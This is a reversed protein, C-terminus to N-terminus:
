LKWKMVPKNMHICLNMYYGSSGYYADCNKTALFADNESSIVEIDTMEKAASLCELIEKAEAPCVNKVNEEFTSDIIWLLNINEGIETMQKLVERVKSVFANEDCYADSINTYFLLQKKIGDDKQGGSDNHHIGENNPKKESCVLIKEVWTDRTKSGALETLADIYNKKQLENELIIKDAVVAGVTAAYYRLNLQGKKDADKVGESNLYPIYILEKAFIALKKAFYDPHICIAGNWEDHSNQIVIEDPFLNEVSTSSYDLLPLDDEYEGIDFKMNSLKGNFSKEFYPVPMVKVVWEEDCKRYEYYPKMSEWYKGSFPIFLVLKKKTISYFCESLVDFSDNMLQAQKETCESGQEVAEYLSFICECLNEIKNVTLTGEGYRFELCTGIDILINQAQVLLNLSNECDGQKLLNYSFDFARKVIDLKNRIDEYFDKCNREVEMDEPNFKYRYSLIGKRHEALTQEQDIYFPYNHVGGNRNAIEWNRYSIDLVKAYAAPAYVTTNEFPMKVAKEFYYRPYKQRGYRTWSIMAAVHTAGEKPASCFCKDLLHLLACDLPLTYDAKFGCLEEAKKLTLRKDVNSNGKVNEAIRHLERQIRLQEEEKKPDTHCYDLVFIDIGAVYPFGGNEALYEDSTNIESHNVIRTLFDDYEVENYISLRRFDDRLESDAVENFKMYDERLMCIDLDDDWPIFGKHRAAGILTGYAVFWRIDYKDCIRKIEELIVIQSWWSRKVMSPIFFGERVEDHFYTLDNNMM